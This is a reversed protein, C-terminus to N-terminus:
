GRTSVKLMTNVVADAVEKSQQDAFERIFIKMEDDFIGQFDIGEAERKFIKTGEDGIVKAIPM